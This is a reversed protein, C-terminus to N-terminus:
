DASENRNQKATTNHSENFLEELRAVRDSLEKYQDVPKQVVHRSIDYPTLTPFGAGDTTKFWIMPATEDLLIVSSNPLMQFANAGGEGNVKIVEYRQLPMYPSQYSNFSNYM